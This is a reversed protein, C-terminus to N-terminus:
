ELDPNNLISDRADGVTHASGTVIVTGRGALERARKLARHFCADVEVSGREVYSRVADLDWRREPPSSPAITFVAASAAHLLPAVMEGWPKDGLIALLLVRPGPLPLTELLETLTGVGEPNHAIDLVWTGAASDVIEFRGPWEANVLGSLLEARSLGFDVREVVRIALAANRAQHAGVLPTHVALDDAWGGSRYRFRTGGLDVSIDEARMDSGYVDLPAQVERARATLVELPGSAMRGVITPVGPKMIGAKEAAIAELSDGLYDAHDVDISSVVCVRPDIVNTADLRGGLGVEAVVVECGARRFAEFALVTASEFFSADEREALGLVDGACAELLDADAIRGSIRIREAFEHLHPSTYLGTRLGGRRLVSEVMAATSGKGNTGGIHIFDPVRHPDGLSSLM